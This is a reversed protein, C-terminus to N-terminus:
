NEYAKIHVRCINTEAKSIGCQELGDNLKEISISTLAFYRVQNEFAYAALSKDDSFWIIKSNKDKCHIQKIIDINETKNIVLIIIEYKNKVMSEFVSEGNEFSYIAPYCNCKSCYELILMNLIKLNEQGACIALKM